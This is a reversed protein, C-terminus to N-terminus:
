NEKIQEFNKINGIMNVRFHQPFEGHRNEVLHVTRLNPYIDNGKGDKINKGFHRQLNYREDNPNFLTFLYDCEEALNGTDKLDDSSPFLQDGFQKQRQMDTMSRNLHLIHVFSYGCLNRLEVTYELYKDVNQKITFSKELKLKRLHDTVIITYKKPNNPIYGTIRKNFKDNNKIFTGEKEAYDTLMRYIGTPNNGNEIFTIRGKKIMIGNNKYDGFLDKIRNLYVDKIKKFLSDSVKIIKGNDDKVRGRLYDSSLNLSDKGKKTSGEPLKIRSIGHDMFLFYAVFDFEKSIRDIEFSFYIWEIPINNKISYLYPQIIFAYDTFTSKGSKPSGAIGYMRGKQLGNIANDINYLGTGMSLGKNEGKQGKEFEIEFNSM